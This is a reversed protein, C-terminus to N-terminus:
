LPPDPASVETSWRAAMEAPTPPPGPLPEPDARSLAQLVLALYRHRLETTRAATAAQIAAVQEFIFAFDEVEIDARLAGAAKMSDYFRRNLEDAGVSAQWLSEDPEFTGALRLTLSHTNADVARRMFDAFVVPPDRPDALAAEVEAVYRRLGDACLARLLGEKNGYRRYLAGIGVGARQAVASVPAGPDNTFVERAAELILGDNRAAQARRGDLRPTARDSMSEHYRFPANQKTSRHFPVISEM